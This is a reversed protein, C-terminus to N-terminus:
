ELGRPLSPHRSKRYPDSTLPHLDSSSNVAEGQNRVESRQDRIGSGAERMLPGPYVGIGIVLLACAVAACWPGAGRQSRPTALPSRFYMVAVIRLYYAAAVAANLVGVVALGTFWWGLRGDAGGVNLASGFVLLKGWFGALPPVGTLSLLCTALLAAAVPRTRGLGALEDVGDIRHDWRGLSELVAFVGLTAAAYAVLYFGLAGLGDWAGPRDGTALAVALGILMYGAHAISSYALLRRLDDQWLATLNGITMTLLSIVLVVRWSDPQMGPMAALLVRVMVVLGAAKPLVSLLAANPHTTGQYVDPAYFQFPVATVKFCLGAFVLVWALKALVHLGAAPAKTGDLAARLAGLDTSGALGYLFSFGYLLIASSLVSLFFYKAASEQCQADRRGLYLLVYTPISILELGLFLLVLDRAGAALMLGAVTLLLSSAYESAGGAAPPRSTLLVLLAGFGLALWRGHWALSDLSLPGATGAPGHQAALAAAAALLAAGAIWSWVRQAASFAGLAYIAVAAAIIAIEPTLLRITATTM